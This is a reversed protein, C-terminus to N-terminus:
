APMISTATRLCGLKQALEAQKPLAQLGAEWTTVDKRFEVPFGFSGPVVGADAFLQQVADVGQQAALAQAETISFEVGRFGYKKALAISEPLNAKVGIAGPGLNKYM